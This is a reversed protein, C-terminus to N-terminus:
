LMKCEVEGFWRNHLKALPFPLIKSCPHKPLSSYTMFHERDLNSGDDMHGKTQHIKFEHLM